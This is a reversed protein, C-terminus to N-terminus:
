LITDAPIKGNAIAWARIIRIAGETLAGILLTLEAIIEVTDGTGFTFATGVAGAGIAGRGLFKVANLIAPLKM